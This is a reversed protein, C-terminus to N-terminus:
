RNRTADKDKGTFWVLRFASGECITREVDNAISGRRRLQSIDEDQIRISTMLGSQLRLVWELSYVMIFCAVEM